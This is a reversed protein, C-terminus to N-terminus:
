LGAQRARFAMGILGASDGLQAKSFSVNRFSPLCMTRYHAGLLPAISDFEAMVGGGLIFYEPSFAHALSVLGYALDRAYDDLFAHAAADDQCHALFVTQLDAFGAAYARRRLASGSATAEWCGATGCACIDDRNGVLLHGFHTALGRRGRILNGDAVAGGGIGTSITLFIFDRAEKAAGFYWEGITAAHGDNDIVVPRNLRAAVADRLPFDRFGALTPTFLAIGAESDLPGPACLGVPTNDPVPCEAIVAQTVAGIVDIIADTGEHAPTPRTARALIRGDPAVVAARTNTGGLDISLVKEHAM